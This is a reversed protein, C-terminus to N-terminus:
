RAAEGTRLTATGQRKGATTREKVAPFRLANAVVLVSSMSMSVAATLPTVYGALAVPIVFLNYGVALALNQRVLRRATAATRLAEPVAALGSGFFVLDAAARGVDAASAPAMSVHAASLAPADNLGDGVMLPKGGERSLEELRAIKERPLLGARFKGIGLSSAV